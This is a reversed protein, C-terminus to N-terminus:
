MGDAGLAPALGGMDKPGFVFLGTDVTLGGNQPAQVCSLFVPVEAYREALRPWSRNSQLSVRPRNRWRSPEDWAGLYSFLKM